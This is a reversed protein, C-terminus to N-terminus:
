LAPPAILLTQVRGLPWYGVWVRGMLNAKPVEGWSRSDDSRARNDGLVYYNGESIKREVTTERSENVVYPEDQPVGNVFVRGREIRILDGPLGIVRKVFNQTPDKPYNFVVVDGRSPGGLPRWIDGAQASVGPIFRSVREADIETYVTRSVVVRDSNILLPEMSPGEVRYNQVAAQIVLVLFLALAVTEIIERTFAKM